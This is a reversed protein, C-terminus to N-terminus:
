VARKIPESPGYLDGTVSALVGHPVPTLTAMAARREDPVAPDIGVPPQLLVRVREAPEPQRDDHAATM